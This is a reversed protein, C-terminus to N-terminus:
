FPISHYSNGNIKLLVCSNDDLPGYHNPEMTVGGDSDGGESQEGVGCTYSADAGEGEVGITGMQLSNATEDSKGDGDDNDDFGDYKALIEFFRGTEKM